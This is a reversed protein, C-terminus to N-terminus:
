GYPLRSWALFSIFSTGILAFPVYTAKFLTSKSTLRQLQEYKSSIFFKVKNGFM